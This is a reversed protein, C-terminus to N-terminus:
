MVVDDSNVLWKEAEGQLEVQHLEFLIVRFEQTRAIRENIKSAEVKSPGVTINVIAFVFM